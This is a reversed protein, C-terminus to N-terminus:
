FPGCMSCIYKWSFCDFVNLLFIDYINSYYYSSSYSNKFCTLPILEEENIWKNLQALYSPVRGTLTPKALTIIGMMLKWLIKNLKKTCLYRSPLLCNSYHVKITIYNTYYISLLSKTFYYAILDMEFKTPAREKIKSQNKSSFSLIWM